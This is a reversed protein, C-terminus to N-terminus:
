ITRRKGERLKKWEKEKETEKKRKMEGESVDVRSDYILVFKLTSYSFTLIKLCSCEHYRISILNQTYKVYTLKM